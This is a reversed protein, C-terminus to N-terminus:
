KRYYNKLYEPAKRIRESRRLQVLEDSRAEVDVVADQHEKIVLDDEINETDNM